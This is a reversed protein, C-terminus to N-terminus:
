LPCMSCDESASCRALAAMIAMEVEGETMGKREDNM